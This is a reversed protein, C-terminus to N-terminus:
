FKRKSLKKQHECYKEINRTVMWVIEADIKKKLYKRVLSSRSTLIKEDVIECIGSGNAVDERDYSILELTTRDIFILIISKM